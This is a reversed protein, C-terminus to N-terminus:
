AEKSGRDHGSKGGTKDAAEDRARMKIVGGSVPTSERVPQFLVGLKRRGFTRRSSFASKSEDREKALIKSTPELLLAREFDM